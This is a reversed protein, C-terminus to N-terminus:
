GFTYNSEGLPADSCERLTDDRAAPPNRLAHALLIRATGAPGAVAALLARAEARVTPSDRRLRWLVGGLIARMIPGGPGRYLSRLAGAVPQALASAFGHKGGLVRACIASEIPHLPTDPALAAARRLDAVATEWLDHRAHVCARQLRAARNRLAMDSGEFMAEFVPVSLLGANTEFIRRDFQRWIEEAGTVAHRAASPGRVGEHKRQDFIVADVHVARHRLTLRVFIEYDQSRLFREDFPGVDRYCARKVLAANQMVFADELMHRVISGASLDPWYGTGMAVRGAVPDIRFREHRGFAFGASGTDLAALLLPVAGPRLLDDDDCIWVHAGDTMALGRNLAASKGANPQRVYRVRPAMAAVVAQTADTSGDDVVLIEDDAGAAAIVARLSEGILDARNYTPM